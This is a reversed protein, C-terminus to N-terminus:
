ERKQKSLVDWKDYGKLKSAQNTNKSENFLLISEKNQDM